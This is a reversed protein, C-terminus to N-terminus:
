VLADHFTRDGALNGRAPTDLLRQVWPTIEGGRNDDVGVSPGPAPAGAGRALLPVTLAAVLVAALGSTWTALRTLRSRRARRVLRGYPDEAPVVPEALRAFGTKLEDISM